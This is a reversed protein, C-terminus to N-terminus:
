LRCIAGVYKDASVTWSKGGWSFAVTPANNCPFSYLGESAEYVQSGPISAYFSKIASPPGYMITTGTDIITDFGSAETKGNILASGGTLQWAYLWCPQGFSSRPRM